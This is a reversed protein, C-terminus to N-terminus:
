EQLGLGLPNFAWLNYHNMYELVKMFVLAKSPKQPSYYSSRAVGLVEAMKELPLIDKNKVM